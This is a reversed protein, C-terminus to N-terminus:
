AELQKRLTVFNRGGVRAYEHHEFMTRVLHVGLGGIERDDVDLDLDPTALEFPNFEAGDDQVRVRLEREALTVDVQLLRASGHNMINSILEELALDLQYVLRTPLTRAEGLANVAESLRELEQLESRLTMSLGEGGGHAAYFCLTLVTIDDSQPAEQAFSKIQELTHNVLARPSLRVSRTLMERLRADGFFKQEADEAETLGDTYLFLTDGESLQLEGAAFQAEELVGLGMGRTAPFPIVEGGAKLVYPLNHGANAFSLHGTRFNLMACFVTVFMGSDNDRCLEQNVRELLEPMTPRNLATAKFLTKTVAMFLAAPVGKGSVDGVMFCMHDEDLLFFDYLDGGVEKAPVVAAYADFEPRHLFEPFIRPLLQQQIDRAITLESEIREKTEITERLRQMSDALRESMRNFSQALLGLENDASVEIRHGLDGSAVVETGATLQQLPETLARACAWAAFLVLLLTGVGLVMTEQRLARVPAFAEDRDQKVMVAAALQPLYRVVALVERGRQDRTSGELRVGDLGESLAPLRASLPHEMATADHRTPTLCQLDGDPMRTVLVTEGTRELGTYDNVVRDIVRIDLEAALTGLLRGADDLVPAALYLARPHVAFRSTTTELLTSAQETVEALLGTVEAPRASFVVKRNRVLVLNLYGSVDCKYRLFEEHGSSHVVPSRALVTLDARRAELYTQLQLVQRKGIANLSSTVGAELSRTANRDTLWTMVALPLVSICLFWFLLQTALSGKM